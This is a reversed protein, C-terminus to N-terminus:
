KQREAQESDTPQPNGRMNLTACLGYACAANDLLDGSQENTPGNKATKSLEHLKPRCESTKNSRTAIAALTVVSM